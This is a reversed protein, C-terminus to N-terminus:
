RSLLIVEQHGHGKTGKQGNVTLGEESIQRKVAKTPVGERMVKNMSPFIQHDKIQQIGKV